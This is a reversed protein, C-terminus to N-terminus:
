MGEMKKVLQQAEIIKKFAEFEKKPFRSRKPMLKRYTNKVLEYAHAMGDCYDRYQQHMNIGIGTIEINTANITATDDENLKVFVSGNWTKLEATVYGHGRKTRNTRGIDSDMIGYCKSM